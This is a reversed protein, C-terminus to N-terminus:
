QLIMVPINDIENEIWENLNDVKEPISIPTYDHFTGQDFRFLKKNEPHVVVLHVWNNIFWEYLTETRQIVSLVVDPFHEVILLLRLPDHVEVMQWPLGPRLDGDIGNAVGFLGMVNHPLKTGAGLKDNDVRSFYYELNIGGCVPAAASLIGFLYDGNPDLAYDYSNMFARRDLFLKLTADRRAVICLSNTAHNLEPRPEFLSVSRRKVLNHIDDPKRNKPIMVFRRARERANKTLAQEFVKKNKEHVESIFSDAFRDDFYEIEDRTTDHLAGLFITTAPIDIGRKRLEERVGPQNAMYSFVRANVSGPRGSCAGCDYGAYHTNNVSSAGHGVVYVIPAFQDVLGISKLLGEVRDVMEMMTFGVQLGDEKEGNSQHEITLKSFRDMHKFSLTTAPSLRPTFINIFLRIASWMGITHTILWGFFLSHTYDAFHFDKQKKKGDVIEKVLYPPNQPAPCTKMTFKGDMPKYYFAVGFFGPTGYTIAKPDIEEIYRRLSCERDDICFMAQFSIDKHETDVPPQHVIGGLVQDYWTWEFAEQWLQLAEQYETKEVPSFLPRIRKKNKLGLPVWNEGFKQDLTDIELLLEFIILDELSIRRSDLLTQPMDELVSVFGSWGPHSFQQDFLYAEYLTEDGVLIKLLDVVECQRDMLLKKAREKKFFSTYTNREMERITTLFGKNWVPFKWISIGQDLYSCIFRFLFPQVALDLDISYLKKWQSRLQGVRGSFHDQLPSELLINKWYALHDNGKKQVIIRELMTPDIKEQHYLGRFESLSLSTKYGFIESAEALAEFFPKDQFAHLTNHHIFDKLSAQSPLFHKLHHLVNELRFEHHM